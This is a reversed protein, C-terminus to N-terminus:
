SGIRMPANLKRLLALVSQVVIRSTKPNESPINEIEMSFKAADSDVQISHINKTLSPDAWIEVQTREAGIGALALALAAVVNVNAPFGRLAELANGSFVCFPATLGEVSFGASM